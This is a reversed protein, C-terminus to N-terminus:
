KGKPRDCAREHKRRVRKAASDGLMEADARCSPDLPFVYGVDPEYASGDASSCASFFLLGGRGQPTAEAEAGQRLVLHEPGSGSLWRLVRLEYRFNVYGKTPPPTKGDLSTKSSAVVEAIGSMSTAAFNERLMELPPLECSARPPATAVPAAVATPAAPAPAATAPPPTSTAPAVVVPPPAGCAPAFAFSALLLRAAKM